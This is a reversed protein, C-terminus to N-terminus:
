FKEDRYEVRRQMVDEAIVILRHDELVAQFQASRAAATVEIAAHNFDVVSVLAGEKDATQFARHAVITARVLVGLAL